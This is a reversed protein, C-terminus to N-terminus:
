GNTIKRRYNERQTRKIKERFVEDIRYKERARELACEACETGNRYRRAYVSHGRPCARPRGPGPNRRKNEGPTEFIIHSPNVCSKNGCLHSLQMKEPVTILAALRRASGDKWFLPYGKEDTVSNWNWCTSTKQVKEWFRLGLNTPFEIM